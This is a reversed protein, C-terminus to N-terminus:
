SSKTSQHCQQEKFIDLTVNRNLSLGVLRVGDHGRLCLREEPQGAGHHYHPCLARKLCWGGMCAKM